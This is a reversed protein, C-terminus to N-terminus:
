SESIVLKLDSSGPWFLYTMFWVTKLGPLVDYYATSKLSQLQYRYPFNESSWTGNIFSFFFFRHYKTMKLSENVQYITYNLFCKLGVHFETPWVLTFDKVSRLEIWLSAFIFVPLGTVTKIKSGNKKETLMFVSKEVNEADLAPDPVTCLFPQVASDSCQLQWHM